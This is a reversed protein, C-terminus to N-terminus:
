TILYNSLTKYAIRKDLHYSMYKALMANIQKINEFEIHVSTLADFATENIRKLYGASKANLNFLRSNNMEETFEGSEIDLGYKGNKTISNLDFYSFSISYGIIKFLELQSKYFYNYFNNESDNLKELSHQLLNFISINPEYNLQSQSVSELIALGINLKDYSNMINKLTTITESKALLYIDTTTKKYYTILSLNLPELSSGFKNKPLRAGKAICTIMGDDATYFSIIKSSDRFKRGYLVFAETTILM